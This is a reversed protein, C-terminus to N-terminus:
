NHQWNERMKQMKRDMLIDYIRENVKVKFIYNNYIKESLLLRNISDLNSNINKLQVIIDNKTNISKFIKVPILILCYLCGLFIYFIKSM